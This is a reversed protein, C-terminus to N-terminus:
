AEPNDPPAFIVLVTLDETINLFHHDRGRDVSIVDSPGVDFREGEVELQARGHRGQV